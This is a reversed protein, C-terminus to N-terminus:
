LNLTTGALYTGVNRWLQNLKFHLVDQKKLIAKKLDLISQCHLQYITGSKKLKDLSYFAIDDNPSLAACFEQQIEAWAENKDEKSLDSSFRGSLISFREKILDLLLIIQNDNFVSAVM